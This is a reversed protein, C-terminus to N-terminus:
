SILCIGSKGEEHNYEIMESTCAGVVLDGNKEVHVPITEKNEDVDGQKLRLFLFGNIWKGDDFIRNLSSKWAAPTAEATIDLGSEGHQLERCLYENKCTGLKKSIVGGFPFETSEEPDTELKFAKDCICVCARDDKACEENDPKDIKITTKYVTSVPPTGGSIHLKNYCEECKYYEANNSFGIIASGKNLALEFEDTEDLEAANIGDVFEDFAQSSGEDSGTFAQVLGGGIKWILIAGIVGLVIRMFAEQSKKNKLM